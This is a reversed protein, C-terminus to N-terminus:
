VDFTLLLALPIATVEDLKRLNAVINKLPSSPRPGEDALSCWYCKQFLLKNFEGLEPLILVRKSVQLNM